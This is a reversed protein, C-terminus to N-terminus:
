GSLAPLRAARLDERPGALGRAQADRLQRQRRRHPPDAVAAEEEVELALAAGVPGIGAVGERLHQHIDDAEQFARLASIKELGPWDEHKLMVCNANDAVIRRIV